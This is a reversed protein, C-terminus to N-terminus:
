TKNKNRNKNQRSYATYGGFVVIPLLIACFSIVVFLFEVFFTVVFWTVTCLVLFYWITELIVTKLFHEQMEKNSKYFLFRMRKIRIKRVNDKTNLQQDVNRINMLIMVLLGLLYLFMICYLRIYDM